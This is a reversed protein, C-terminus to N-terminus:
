WPNQLKFLQCCHVSSSWGRFSSESLGDHLAEDQPQIYFDLKRFSFFVVQWSINLSQGEKDLQIRNNHNEM